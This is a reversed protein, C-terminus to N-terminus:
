DLLEASDGRAVHGPELVEAYTAFGPTAYDPLMGDPLGVKDRYRILGHMVIQDTKGTTPNYGTVQCRPVASRVRFTAGGIRLRRGDWADEEHAADHDLVFGARFRASDVPAGVEQELRRLSGTTVFTVACVDIAHGSSLCRVLRIPRGAYDSLAEQWPGDVEAVDITRLGFHDIGFTRGSAAAPGSIRGGDPTELTLEQEDHSLTFRLPIFEAHQESGVFTDDSEVLAWARDHRIGDSDVDVADPHLFQTAKVVVRGIQSVIMPM